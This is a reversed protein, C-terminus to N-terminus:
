FDVLGMNIAYRILDSRRTINLKRKIRVKYTEVTKVSIFLKDSIQQNTYGQAMYKLVETERSSLQNSGEQNQIPMEFMEFILHKTMSPDIYTEGRFVSRIASLLDTDAAKKLIYGNGGVRLVDKVYSGDDHMTLVLIKLSPCLRKVEPIVRLGGHEPMNLDLLLVNPNHKKTLLITESDDAAEAVVEMDKQANLMMTLGSRLVAHDDAILIKINNM